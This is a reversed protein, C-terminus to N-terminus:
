PPVWLKAVSLSCASAATRRTVHIVLAVPTCVPPFMEIVTIPYYCNAPAYFYFYCGDALSSCYECGYRSNWCHHGWNCYDRGHTQSPSRPDHSSGPGHVPNKTIPSRPDHSSGPGHVPDKTPSGFIPLYPRTNVVSGPFHKAPGPVTIPPSTKNNVNGTPNQTPTTKSNAPGNGSSTGPRGAQSENVLILTIALVVSTQMIRFM